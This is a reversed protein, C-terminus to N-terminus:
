KTKTKPKTRGLSAYDCCDGCIAACMGNSEHCCGKKEYCGFCCPTGTKCCTCKFLWYVCIIGPITVVISISKKFGEDRCIRGFLAFELDGESVLRM